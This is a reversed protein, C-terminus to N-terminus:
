VYTLTVTSGSKLKTGGSPSQSYVRNPSIGLLEKRIKVQFGLSELKQKAESMSLSSVNPVTVM